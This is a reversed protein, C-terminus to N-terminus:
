CEGGGCSIGPLTVTERRVATEEMANEITEVLNTKKEFVASHSIAAVRM